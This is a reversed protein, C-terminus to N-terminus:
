SVAENTVRIARAQVEERAAIEYDFLLLEELVGDSLDPMKRLQAISDHHPQLDDLVHAAALRERRRQVLWRVSRIALTEGRSLNRKHSGLGPPDERQHATGPDDASQRLMRVTPEIPRRQGTADDEAREGHGHEHLRLAAAALDSM